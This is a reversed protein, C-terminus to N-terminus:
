QPYNKPEINNNYCRRARVPGIDSLFKPWSPFYPERIDLLLTRGM